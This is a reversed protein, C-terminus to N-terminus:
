LFTNPHRVEGRQALDGLLSAVKRHVRDSAGEKALVGQMRGLGGAEYFVGRQRESDALNSLGYLGKAALAPDEM